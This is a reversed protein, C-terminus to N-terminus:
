NTRGIVALSQLLPTIDERNEPLFKAKKRYVLQCVLAIKPNAIQLNIM